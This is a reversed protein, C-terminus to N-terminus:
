IYKQAVNELIKYRCAHIVYASINRKQSTMTNYRQILTIIVEYFSNPLLGEKERTQCLKNLILIIQEKFTQYFQAERPACHNLIWRVNCLVCTRARTRSSRVHWLAALGTRWLQQAQVRSGSLWLQQAQTGLAQAGCCSFGSYHSAQARCCCRLGLATLFLYIFLYM